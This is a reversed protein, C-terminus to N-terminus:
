IDPGKAAPAAFAFLRPDGAGQGGQHLVTLFGIESLAYLGNRYRGHAWGPIVQDRAMAKPSVAFIPRDWNALRLKLYLLTADSGNKHAILVRIDSATLQIKAETGAWNQGAVQYSWASEVTKVVEAHPLPPDFDENITDAVDQLASKDNCHRAHRLLNRFLTENRWGQKVARLPAAQAASVRSVPLSGPRVKPLRALDNWSGAVFEYKRGAHEGTPRISPPVVIVGNSRLDVSLKEAQRLNHDANDSRRYWLHAGGSPTRTKLPTEGFRVIMADILAADDVDVVTVNSLRSLIGVNATPWAEVMKAVWSRPPRKRWKGYGRVAGEVSKGNDSPCPLPMLGRGYLEMAVQSFPGIKLGKHVDV